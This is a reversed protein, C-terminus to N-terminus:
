TQSHKIQEKKRSGVRNRNIVVSISKNMVARLIVFSLDEFNSFLLLPGGAAAPCVDSVAHLTKWTKLAM